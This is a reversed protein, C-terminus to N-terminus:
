IIKLPLSLDKLNEFLHLFSLLSCNESLRLDLLQGLLVGKGLRLLSVVSQTVSDSRSDDLSSEDSPGSINLDLSLLSNKESSELDGSTDGLEEIGEVLGGSRLKEFNQSFVGGLGSLLLSVSKLVGGSFLGLVLFIFLSVLGDGELETEVVDGVEDLLFSGLQDEDGIVDVGNLSNDEEGGEALRKVDGVGDNSVLSSESLQDVLLGGGNDSQGVEFLVLSLEIVDGSDALLLEVVNDRLGLFGFFGVLGNDSLSLNLLGEESLFAFLSGCLKVGYTM